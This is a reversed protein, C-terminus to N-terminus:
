ASQITTITINSTSLTFKYNYGQPLVYEVWTTGDGSVTLNYPILDASYAQILNTIQLTDVSTYIGTALNDAIYQKLKAQDVTASSKNILSFKVYLNQYSPRDFLITETRGNAKTVDVSVNGRMGCGDTVEAYIVQAIDTNLGGEVIAWITHGATGTSDTASLRNDHVYAGTVLNINLLQALLGDDQGRSGIARSQNFRINFAADTEEAQGTSYQAAPNNVSAVNAIVSVMNTITNPLVEIAGVNAARFELAYTGAGNIYETNLLIYNNGITDSVTYGTATLSEANDDLGQLICSGTTTVNVVVYSFASAKRRLGILKYLNDQARGRVTDPNFMNYLATALELTDTKAQAAINILQGDPTNQAVSIDEGYIDKFAQTLNAVTTTVSDTVIGNENIENAM